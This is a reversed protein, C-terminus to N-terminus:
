GGSGLTKMVNTAVQEIFKAIPDKFLYGAGVVAVVIVGIVLLYEVTGQGKEDALWRKFNKM